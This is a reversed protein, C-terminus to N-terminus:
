LQNEGSQTSFFNGAVDHLGFKKKTKKGVPREQPSKAMNFKYVACVQRKGGTKEESMEIVHELSFLVDNTRDCAFKEWCVNCRLRTMEGTTLWFRRFLTTVISFIFYYSSFRM